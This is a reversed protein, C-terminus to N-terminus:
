RGGGRVVMQLMRQLASIGPIGISQRGPFGGPLTPLGVTPRTSEPMRGPLGFMELAGALPSQAAYMGGQYGMNMDYPTRRRGLQASLPNYGGYMYNNYPMNDGGQVGHAM